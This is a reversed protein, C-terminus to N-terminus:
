ITDKGGSFAYKMIKTRVQKPNDTMFISTNLISSSMKGEQQIGGLGPLFRSLITSPKPYGLKPAVDNTMFFHPQQDIACPILCNTPKNEMISPLFAPVSQM